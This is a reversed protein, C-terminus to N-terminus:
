LFFFTVLVVTHISKLKFLILLMSTCEMFLLPLFFHVLQSVMNQDTGINRASLLDDMCPTYIFSEHPATSMFRGRRGAPEFTALYQLKSSGLYYAFGDFHNGLFVIEKSPNYGLFDMSSMIHRDRGETYVGYGEEVNIGSEDSSDWGYDEREESRIQGRNDLIWSTKIEKIDDRKYHQLFSAKIDAKYKLEWEPMERSESAEQFVWVQLQHWRLAFYYIGHKSKGLHMSPQLSDLYEQHRQFRRLFYKNQYAGEGLFDGIELRPPIFVNDLRPTKIVQYKQELWSFRNITFSHSHETTALL